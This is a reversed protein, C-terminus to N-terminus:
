KKLSFVWSQHEHPYERYGEHPPEMWVALDISLVEANFSKLLEIIEDKEYYKFYFKEDYLYTEPGIVRMNDGRTSDGMAFASGIVTGGTRCIRLLEKIAKQVDELHGLVDWCFVADFQGSVFCSEFIDTEILLCNHAERATVLDNCIQLANASADAGVVFPFREAFRVLNRGDGCPFDIVTKVNNAIFIDTARSVFPVSDDGWLNPSKTLNYSEDWRIKSVEDLNEHNM